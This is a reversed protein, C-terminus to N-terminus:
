VDTVEDETETGEVESEEGSAPDTGPTFHASRMRESEDEIEKTSNRVAQKNYTKLSTTIQKFFSLKFQQNTASGM